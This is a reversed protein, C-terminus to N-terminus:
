PEISEKATKIAADVIHAVRNRERNLIRRESRKLKLVDPDTPRHNSIEDAANLAIPTPKKM